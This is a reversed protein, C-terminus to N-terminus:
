KRFDSASLEVARGLRKSLYLDFQAPDIQGRLMELLGIGEPQSNWYENFRDKDVPRVGIEPRAKSYAIRAGLRLSQSVSDAPATAIAYVDRDSLAGSQMLSTFKGAAAGSTQPEAGGFHTDLIQKNADSATKKLTQAIRDLPEREREERSSAAKLVAVVDMDRSEPDALIAEVFPLQGPTAQSMASRRRAEQQKAEFAKAAGVFKRQVGLSQSKIYELNLEQRIIQGELYRIRDEDKPTRRSKSKLEDRESVLSDLVGSEDVIHKRTQAIVDDAERMTVDSLDMEDIMKFLASSQAMPGMPEVPKVPQPGVPSVDPRDSMDLFDEYPSKPAAVGRVRATMQPLVSKLASRSQEVMGMDGQTIGHEAMAIAQRLKFDEEYRKNTAANQRAAEEQAQRMREEQAADLALRRDTQGSTVLFQAAREERQARDEAMRATLAAMDFARAEDARRQEAALNEKFQRRKVITEGINQFINAQTEGGRQIINALNSLGAWNVGRGVGETRLAM